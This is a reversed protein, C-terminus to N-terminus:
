EGQQTLDDIREDIIEDFARGLCIVLMVGSWVAAVLIVYAAIEAILHIETDSM